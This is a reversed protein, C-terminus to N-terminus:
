ILIQLLIQVLILMWLLRLFALTFNYRNVSISMNNITSFLNHFTSYTMSNMLKHFSIVFIHFIFIAIYSITQFKVNLVWFFQIAYHNVREVQFFFFIQSYYNCSLFSNRMCMFYKFCTLYWPATNFFLWQVWDFLKALIICQYSYLAPFLM